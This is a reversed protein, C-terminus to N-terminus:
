ARRWSRSSPTTASSCLAACARPRARTSRLAPPAAYTSCARLGSCACAAGCRSVKKTWMKTAPDFFNEGWLREGMKEPSVAFKSAYLKAFTGLTFAWNHLGASFCVTGKEPYVQTDGLAEDAYTSMLVNASEIVRLFSSYAQEGDQQLELFCRDMKNVTLVPKIREAARAHQADPSLVCHLCARAGRV